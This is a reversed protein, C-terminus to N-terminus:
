LSATHDLRTLSYSNMGRVVSSWGILVREQSQNHSCSSPLAVTDVLNGDKGLTLLNGSMSVPM